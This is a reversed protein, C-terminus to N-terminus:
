LTDAHDWENGYTIRTALSPLTDSPTATRPLTSNPNANRSLTNNPTTARPFTSNTISPRRLTSERLNNSPRPVRMGKRNMTEYRISSTSGRPDRPYANMNVDPLLQYNPYRLAEMPISEEKTEYHPDNPTPLNFTTGRRGKRIRHLIHYWDHCPKWIEIHFPILNQYSQNTMNTMYWTSVNEVRYLSVCTSLCLHFQRRCSWYDSSNCHSSFFHHYPWQNSVIQTM